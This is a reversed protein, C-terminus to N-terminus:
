QVRCGHTGPSDLREIVTNAELHRGPSRTSREFLTRRTRQPTGEPEPHLAISRPTSPSSERVRHERRLSPSDKFTVRRPTVQGLRSPTTPMSLTRSPTRPPATPSTLATEYGERRMRALESLLRDRSLLLEQETASAVSQAHSARRRVEALEREHSVTMEEMARRADALQTELQRQRQFEEAERQRLYDGESMLAAEMRERTSRGDALERDLREIEMEAAAATDELETARLVAEDLQERLEDSFEKETALNARVLMLEKDRNGLQERLANVKRHLEENLKSEARLHAETAQRGAVEAALLEDKAQLAMEMAGFTDLIRGRTDMSGAPSHEINRGSSAEGPTGSRANEKLAQVRVNAPTSKSGSAAPGIGSRRTTARADRFAAVWANAASPSQACLFIGRAYGRVEIYIGCGARSEQAHVNLSSVVCGTIDKLAVASTPRTAGPTKLFELAGERVRVWRNNWTKTSESRKSLWAGSTIVDGRRASAGNDDDDDDDIILVRANADSPTLSSSSTNRVVTVVEEDDDDESQEARPRM